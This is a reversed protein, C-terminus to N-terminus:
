RWMLVFRNITVWHPYRWQLAASQEASPVASFHPARNLAVLDIQKEELVHLLGGPDYERFDFFFRTLNPHAALFYVEPSDPGAYFRLSSPKARIAAILTEYQRADEPTVRLGARDLKLPTDLSLGLFRVVYARNLRFIAFFFYFALLLAQLKKSTGAEAGATSALALVVLPAFYCFYIPAPFPFQVLGVLACASVLLFSKHRLLDDRGGTRSILRWCGLVVAVVNLSRASNWVKDYIPPTGSTVMLTVAAVGLVLFLAHEARRGLRHSFALLCAGPVVTWLTTAPPFSTSGVAVQRQSLIFFGWV